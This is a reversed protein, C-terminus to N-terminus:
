ETGKWKNREGKRKRQGKKRTLRKTEPTLVFIECFLTWSPKRHHLLNRMYEKSPKSGEGGRTHEKLGKKKKM